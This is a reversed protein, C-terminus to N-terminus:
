RGPFNSELVSKIQALHMKREVFVKKEGQIFLTGPIAGSWDRSVKDIFEGGSEDLLVCHAKVSKKVLFPNVKKEIDEKFDLSVLLVRVKSGLVASHLSDFSPLEQVCPKCWVAWFNVVYVTDNGTIRELLDDIKLVSQVKQANTGSILLLFALIGILKNKLLCRM